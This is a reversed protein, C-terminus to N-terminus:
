IFSEPPFPPSSPSENTLVSGHFEIWQNKVVCYVPISASDEHSKGLGAYYELTEYLLFYRGGVFPWHGRKLSFDQIFGQRHVYM